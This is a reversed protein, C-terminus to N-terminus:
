RVRKWVQTKCGISRFLCGSGTLTNADTLAITGTFSKGIDPVYVEGRWVGDNGRRFDKFLQAGILTRGRKAVDAKAKASAWVVTGCMAKGCSATRIHVSNSANRWTGAWRPAPPAATAATALLLIASASLLHRM